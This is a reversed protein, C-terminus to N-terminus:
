RYHGVVRGNSLVEVGKPTEKGLTYGDMARESRFRKAVDSRDIAPASQDASGGGQRQDFVDDAGVKRKGATRAARELEPRYDPNERGTNTTKATLRRIEVPDMGAVAERAADIELNSKQQTLTLSGPPKAQLRMTLREDRRDERNEDREVDLAKIQIQRDLLAAEKDRQAQQEAHFKVASMPSLANAAQNALSATEATQSGLVQGDASVQDIRYQKGDGLPTLKVTHGDNYLQANYMKEFDALAGASDGIAHKRVGSMWKTAYSRGDESDIFESFQKAEQFRGQKILSEMAKPAMTKLYTNVDYNQQPAAAGRSAPQGTAPGDSPGGQELASGAGGATSGAPRLANAVSLKGGSLVGRIEDDDNQKQELSRMQMAQLRLRQAEEPRGYKSLVDTMAQTNRASAQSQAATRSDFSDGGVAFSAKRDPSMAQLIDPNQQLYEAATAPGGEQPVYNEQFNKLAADGSVSETVTNSKSAAGMEGRMQDERFDAVAQAGMRYGEMVALGQNAYQRAM